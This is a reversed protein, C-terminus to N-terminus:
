RYQVQLVDNQSRLYEIHALLADITNLLEPVDERAQAIFEADNKDNARASRNTNCWHGAGIFVMGRDGEWPTVTACDARFRIEKLRNQDVIPLGVPSLSFPKENHTDTMTM